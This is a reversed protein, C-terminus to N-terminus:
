RKNRRMQRFADDFLDKQARSERNAATSPHGIHEDARPASAYREAQSVIDRAQMQANQVILAAKQNAAGILQGCREYAAQVNELYQAAAQEASEFVHNLQLSAEAISGANALAITREELKGQLEAAQQELRANEEMQEILLQILESRNLKRLEKETM